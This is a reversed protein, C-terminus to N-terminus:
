RSFIELSEETWDFNGDDVVDNLERKKFLFERKMPPVRNNTAELFRYLTKDRIISQAKSKDDAREQTSPFDLRGYGPPSPSRNRMNDFHINRLRGEYKACEIDSEKANNTKNEIFNSVKKQFKEFDIEHKKKAIANSNPCFDELIWPRKSFPNKNFDLVSQKNNQVKDNHHSWKWDYEKINELDLRRKFPITKEISLHDGGNAHCVEKPLPNDAKSDNSVQSFKLPSSFEPKISSKEFQSQKKASGVDQSDFQTLIFDDSDQSDERKVQLVTVLNGNKPKGDVKGEEQIENPLLVEKPQDETSKLDNSPNILRERLTKTIFDQLDLLQTVNMATVTKIIEDNPM